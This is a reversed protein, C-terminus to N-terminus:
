MLNKKRLIRERIMRFQEVTLKSKLFRMRLIKCSINFRKLLEEQIQTYYLKAQSLIMGGSIPTGKEREQYFWLILAEDLEPFKSINLKSRNSANSGMQAYSDRIQDESKIIGRVSSEDIMYKTALSVKTM